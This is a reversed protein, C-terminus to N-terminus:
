STIFPVRLIPASRLWHSANLVGLVLAFLPLFHGLVDRVGEDFLKASFARAHDEDGLMVPIIPTESNGTDFGLEEFGKNLYDVNSWLKQM